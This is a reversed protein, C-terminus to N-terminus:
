GGIVLRETGTGTHYLYLGWKGDVQKSYAFYNGDPSINPEDVINGDAIWHVGSGDANMAFIGPGNNRNSKFYITSGDWSWRPRWDRVDNHTLNRAGSGDKNMVFIESTNRVKAMVQQIEKGSMEGVNKPLGAPAVRVHLIQQGDPSWRPGMDNTQRDTLRTRGTGDTRIVYIDHVDGRREPRSQFTVLDGTPSWSPSYDVDDVNTLRRQGSGDTNMIYLQLYGDRDSIFVIQRGDPSWEPQEDNASGDTLKQSDSGDVNITYIAFQGERTSEFVLTSGDPSWDPNFYYVPSDTQQARLGSVGLCLVLMPLLQKM